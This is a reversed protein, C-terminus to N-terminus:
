LRAAPKKHTGVRSRLEDAAAADAELRAQTINTLALDAHLQAERAALPGSANGGAIQRLASEAVALDASQALNRARLAKVEDRAAKYRRDAGFVLVAVIVLVILLAPILLRM